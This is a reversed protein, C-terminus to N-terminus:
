WAMGFFWQIASSGNLTWSPNPRTSPLYTCTDFAGTDLLSCQWLKGGSYGGSLSQDSNADSVYAYQTGNVTGFTIGTLATNNTYDVKMGNCSPFFGANDLACLDVLANASDVIYAYSGGNVTTIAIGNPRTIGTGVSNCSAFTGDNNFPCFNITSSSSDVLYAYQAGNVAAIAIGSSAPTSSSIPTCGTFQGNTVQGSTDLTCQYVTSGDTVYAYQTGNVTAFAIQSPSTWSPTFQTSASACNLALDGSTLQCYDVGSIGMPVYDYLTNSVTAFVIDSPTGPLSTSSVCASLSGNFNLLCSHVLNNTDPSYSYTAPTTLAITGNDIQTMTLGGNVFSNTYTAQM